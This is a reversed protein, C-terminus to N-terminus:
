AFLWFFIPDNRVEDPDPLYELVNLSLDFQDTDVDGWISEFQDVDHWGQRRDSHRIASLDRLSRDIPAAEIHM